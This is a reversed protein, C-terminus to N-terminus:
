RLKAGCGQCRVNSSLNQSGCYGCIITEPTTSQKKIELEERELQIKAKELEMKERELDRQGDNGMIPEGPNVRSQMRNQVIKVIIILVFFFWILAFFPIIMFLFDMDDFFILNILVFAFMFFFAIPVFILIGIKNKSSKIDM